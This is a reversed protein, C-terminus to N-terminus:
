GRRELRISEICGSIVLTGATMKTLELGAGMVVVQGFRVRVGIRCRGYETVGQHHEILVRRDGSLEVVPLGPIPEETLDAAVTLRSLMNKM